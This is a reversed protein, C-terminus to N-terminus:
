PTSRNNMTIWGGSCDAKLQADRSLMRPANNIDIRELTCHDIIFWGKTDSRLSQFFNVLQGEHLLDMQLNVSSLKIDFNGADLAPNPTYPQQPAITYKFDIVRHQRRLNELGEMWDLRQETGIIKNNVLAAYEKAYISMNELDSQASSLANRAEVLQRQAHQRQKLSRDVYESGLWIASGSLLLSLTIALVGWKLHQFDAKAFNM